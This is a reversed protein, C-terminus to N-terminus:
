RVLLMKRTFVVSNTQLRYFYIGSPLASGNWQVSYDGALKEGNVLTTVERGLIDFVKLTVFSKFPVRFSITTVPNFPNPYNQGLSYAPPPLNNDSFTSSLIWNDPDLQVSTPKEHLSVTFQQQASDNFETVTTDWGSGSIKVDVPMTFFPPNGEANNQKINITLMNLGGASQTSWDYEYHPYGEGYIWEKFFYDLNEGSVNECVSEFDSITATNYRLLSDAAYAKIAHFFVSDGLVHRLMHLVCAGKSYIRNLNFLNRVSSTDAIGIVGTAQRALSLQDQMYQWYSDMGYEFERYLASSYQAFGENLWLDSWTRCTIMDGFWQHGLEHSLVDEDFSTTSCMTQHEMAGGSAFQSYGYKEKIFPYLGYLNSYIKLMDVTRPLIALAQDYDEPLVYSLIEMSDTPSYRFWNTFQAYNTVAISILYSAIPYSEHWHTTARGDGLDVISVLAGESGVKFTSDCTVFIDASDAKDSPDDKCPWWDRAGYPESLSWVWPTGEHSGFMFSGFGTPAPLGEYFIELSVQEGSHYIRDLTVEFSSAHQVFATLSSNLRVSDVKMTNMLDLTLSGANDSTCQGTVTIDGKLYSSSTEVDLKLRYYTIDLWKSAASYALTQMPGVSAAESELQPVPKEPTTPPLFVSQAEVDSLLM